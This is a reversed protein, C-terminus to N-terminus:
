NDSPALHYQMIDWLPLGDPEDDLIIERWAISGGFHSGIAAESQPEMDPLCLYECEM